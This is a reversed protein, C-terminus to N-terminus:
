TMALDVSNIWNLTDQELATVHHDHAETEAIEADLTEKLYKYRAM